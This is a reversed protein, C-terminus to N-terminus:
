READNKPKVSGDRREAHRALRREAAAAQRLPPMSRALAAGPLHNSWSVQLNLIFKVHNLRKFMLFQLNSM